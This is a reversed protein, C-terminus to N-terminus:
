KTGQWQNALTQSTAPVGWHDYSSSEEREACRLRPERGLVPALFAKMLAM